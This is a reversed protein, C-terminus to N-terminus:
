EASLRLGRLQIGSLETMWTEGPRLAPPSVLTGTTVIEGAQIPEFEPHERLADLLHMAAHLPSDLANAGTGRAHVTGDKTLAITFSRLTRAVDGLRDIRQPPGIVLAGHLGFDVVTDALQFKWQPYHCQVIEFGHAVWDVCALLEDEHTCEGPAHSFHLVIEPEILPQVLHGIPLRVSPEQLFTVTTEYVHAWMPAAVGYEPWINRNTFGIKRGIPQEGRARRRRLIEASVAHALALDFDPVRASFPELMSAADLAQLLETAIQNKHV